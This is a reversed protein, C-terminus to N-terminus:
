YLWPKLERAGQPLRRIVLGNRGTVIIEEEKRQRTRALRMRLLSVVYYGEAAAMVCDDHLGGKDQASAKLKEQVKTWTFGSMERVLEPCYFEIAHMVVASKFSELSKQRNTPTPYMGPKPSEGAKLPSFPDSHYYVRGYALDRLERLFTDGHHSREAGLWATNYYSGIACGMAAAVKPSCQLRLRAVIKEKFIDYVYIVTWDADDGLGGGACDAWVLYQRAPDPFEWIGFNPGYFSIEAGNYRLSEMLKLPQRKISRYYELHDIGDPTDFFKGQEGIFCTDESEPFEQLFPHPTKDQEVKKIRRWLIRDVDLSNLAMLQAEYDSPRFSRTLEVYETHPLLIDCGSLPDDTVRYRPELWWPYLHVTWLDHPNHPRASTAYKWFAGTEGKPTSEIDVRGVPAGPVAPLLSGMHSIAAAQWHAFESLHAEQIAYGRGLVKQEGSGWVFRNEFEKIVMEDANDLGIQLELNHRKLDTVWHQMKERFLATTPDSEAAVLCNAGWVQGTVFRRFRRALKLTSARTQRGKITVDRGTEDYLMKIQQPFLKMKVIQGRENAVTLYKEIWEHTAAPTEDLWLRYLASEPDAEERLRALPMAATM